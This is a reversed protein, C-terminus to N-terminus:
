TEPIEQLAAGLSNFFVCQNFDIEIAQTILGTAVKNDGVQYDTVGLL